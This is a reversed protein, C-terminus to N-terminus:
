FDGLLNRYWPDVTEIMANARQLHTGVIQTGIPQYDLNDGLNRPFLGTASTVTQYLM